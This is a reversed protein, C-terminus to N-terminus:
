ALRDILPKLCQKWTPFAPPIFGLKLLDRVRQVVEDARMGDAIIIGESEPIGNLSQKFTVVPIGISLPDMIKNKVGAGSRVMSVVALCGDLASRLDEVWGTYEIGKHRFASPPLGPGIVRVRVNEIVNGQSLWAITEELMEVNPMYSWDGIVCLPGDEKLAVSRPGYLSVEVSNPIIVVCASADISCSDNAYDVDSIYGITDATRSVRKLAISAAMRKLGVICEYRFGSKYKSIRSLEIWSDCVDVHIHAKPARRRLRPIIALALPLGEIYFLQNNEAPLTLHAAFLFKFLEPRWHKARDVPVTRVTKKFEQFGSLIGVRRKLEGLATRIPLNEHLYVVTM